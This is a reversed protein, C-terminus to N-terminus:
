LTQLADMTEAQVDALEFLYIGAPPLRLMSSMKHDRREQKLKCDRRGPYHQEGHVTSPWSCSHLLSCCALYQFNAATGRQYGSVSESELM